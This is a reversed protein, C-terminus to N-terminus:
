RGSGAAAEDGLGIAFRGEDIVRTDPPWDVPTPRGVQADPLAVFGPRGDREVYAGAVGDRQQLYAAPLHAAVSHWRLEGARGPALPSEPAFVVERTQGAESVLPSVRV